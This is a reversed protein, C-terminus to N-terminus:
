RKIQSDTVSQFPRVEYRVSSPSCYICLGLRRFRGRPGFHWDPGVVLSDFRLALGLVLDLGAALRCRSDPLAVVVLRCDLRCLQAARSKRM